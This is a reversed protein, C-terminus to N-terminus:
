RRKTASIQVLRALGRARAHPEAIRRSLQEAELLIPGRLDPALNEVVALLAEAVSEEGTLGHATDLARRLTENRQSEPQLSVVRAIAAARWHPYPVALAAALGLTGDELDALSKAVLAFAQARAHPDEMDDLFELAERGRGLGALRSCVAGLAVTRERPNDSATLMDLAEQVQSETMVPALVALVDGRGHGADLRGAVRFAEALLADDVSGQEPQVLATLVVASWHEDPVLERVVDPIERGSALSRIVDPHHALVWARQAVDNIEALARASETIAQDRHPEILLSLLDGITAARRYPDRIALTTDLAAKSRGRTGLYIALAALAESHQASDGVARASALAEDLVASVDAGAPHQSAVATLAEARWRDQPILRAALLARELEEGDPHESLPAALRALTEAQRDRLTRAMALSHPVGLRRDRWSEDGPDTVPALDLVSDGGGTFREVVECAASRWYDDRIASAIAEADKRWEAPLHPVLRALTGTLWQEDKVSRAASVAERLVDQLLPPKLRASLRVLAEVRDVPDPTRRAYAVAEPESLSGRDLLATLLSPPVNAAVSSVSASLLAYRLELSVPAAKGAAVLARSSEEVLHWASAVDSLYIYLMQAREQSQRWVNVVRGMPTQDPAQTSEWGTWLLAHLDDARSADILHGVLHRLGYGDDMLAAEPSRLGPLSDALGGWASLYRDVIRGNAARTERATHRVTSREVGNLMELDVQGNLFAQFSAQAIGYRVIERTEDIVLFPRWSERLLSEVQRVDDIGALEALFAAPLTEAAAGLTSLLPQHVMGWADEHNGQWTRWFQEYYQWLGGPLTQLDDLLRSGTEIELIVYSLYLWLGGTKDVLTTVFEDETMPSAVLLQAIRGRKAAVRLYQAMDDRSQEATLSMVRKPPDVKLSVKVDRHAAIIYVGQPLRRPLSLPNEGHTSGAEDLADIVLVIPESPKLQDRKDAAAQLLSHFFDPRSASAPLFGDPSWSELKWSRIVQASLNRMAVGVDGKSPMLQVFHHIYGREKAMWALLATKGVGLAGEIELYGRDHDSLFGDIANLIEHRGTFHELDLDQYLASPDLYAESLREYYGIFFQNNDGTSFISQIAAQGVAISRTGSAEVHAAGGSSDPM